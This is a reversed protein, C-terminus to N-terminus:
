EPLLDEYTVQGETAIVIKKATDMKLISKGTIARNLTMHDLGAKRQFAAKNICYKRLYEKLKM